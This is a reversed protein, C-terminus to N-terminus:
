LALIAVGTGAAVKGGDITLNKAKSASDTETSTGKLADLMSLGLAQNATGLSGLSNAAELSTGRDVNFQGLRTNATNLALQNAFDSALGAQNIYDSGAGGRYGATRIQALNKAYQRPAQAEMASIVSETHPNTTGMLSKLYAASDSQAGGLAGQNASYSGTLSSLMQKAEPSEFTPTSTQTQQETQKAKSATGM